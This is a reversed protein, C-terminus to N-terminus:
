IATLEIYTSTSDDVVAWKYRNNAFDRCTRNYMKSIRVAVGTSTDGTTYGLIVMEGQALAAEAKDVMKVIGSAAEGDYLAVSEVVFKNTARQKLIYATEGAAAGGALYANVRINYAADGNPMTDGDSTALTGFYRKNIPRGM